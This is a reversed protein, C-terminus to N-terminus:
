NNIKSFNDKEEKKKQGKIYENLLEKEEPLLNAMLSTDRASMEDPLLGLSVIEEYRKLEKKSISFDKGDIKGILIKKIERNEKEDVFEDYDPLVERNDGIGDKENIGDIKIENLNVVEMEPKRVVDWYNVVEDIVKNGSGFFGSFKKMFKAFTKKVGKKIRGLFNKGKKESIKKNEENEETKEAAKISDELIKDNFSSIDKELKEILIKKDEESM